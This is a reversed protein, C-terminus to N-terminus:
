YGIKTNEANSTAIARTPTKETPNPLKINDNPNNEGFENLVILLEMFSTDLWEFQKKNSPIKYSAQLNEMGIKFNYNAQQEIEELQEVMDVLSDGVIRNNVDSLKNIAEYPNILYVNSTGDATVEFYFCYLYDLIDIDLKNFKLTTPKQIAEFIFKFDIGSHLVGDKNTQFSGAGTINDSPIFIDLNNPIRHVKVATTNDGITSSDNEKNLITQNDICAKKYEKDLPIKFYLGAKNTLYSNTLTAGKFFNFLIENIAESKNLGKVSAYNTLDDNLNKDIRFTAKEKPKISYYEAM